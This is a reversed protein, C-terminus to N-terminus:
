REQAKLDRLCVMRLWLVRDLLEPRYWDPTEFRVRIGIQLTGLWGCSPSRWKM